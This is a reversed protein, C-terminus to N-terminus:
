SQPQRAHKGCTWVYGQPVTATYHRIGVHYRLVIATLVACSAAPPGALEIVVAPGGRNGPTTNAHAAVAFGPVAAFPPRACAALGSMVTYVCGYNSHRAVRVSLVRAPTYGEASSVTIGDIVATSGGANVLTAVYTTPQTTSLGFRGDVSPVGLPGNGLGVPGLLLFVVVLLSVAVSAVIVRRRLKHATLM